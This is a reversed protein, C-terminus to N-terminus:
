LFFWQRPPVLAATKNLFIKHLKISTWENSSWCNACFQHENMFLVRHLANCQNYFFLNWFLRYRSYLNQVSSKFESINYTAAFIKCVALVSLSCLATRNGWHILISSLIGTLRSKSAPILRYWRLFVLHQFNNWQSTNGFPPPKRLTFADALFHQLLNFDM